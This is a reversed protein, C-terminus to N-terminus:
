FHDLEDGGSTEATAVACGEFAPRKDLRAQERRGRAPGCRLQLARHLDFSPFTCYTGEDPTIKGSAPGLM